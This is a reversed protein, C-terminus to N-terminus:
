WRSTPSRGAHARPDSTRLLSARGFLKTLWVRVCVSPVEPSLLGVTSLWDYADLVCCTLLHQFSDWGEQVSITGSTELHTVFNQMEINDNGNVM